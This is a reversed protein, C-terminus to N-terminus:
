SISDRETTGVHAFPLPERVRDLTAVDAEVDPAGVLKPRLPADRDPVVAAAGEVLAAVTPVWRQADYRGVAIRGGAALREALARDTLVDIVRDALDVADDTVLVDVGDTYSLGSLGASTAVVPRGHGWAEITTIRTGSAKRVPVIAVRSEQYLVDLDEVFGLAEIGGDFEAFQESGPGAFTLRLTRFTANCSRGCARQWGGRVLSM